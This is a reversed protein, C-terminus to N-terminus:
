PHVSVFEREPLLLATLYGNAHSGSGTDLAVVHGLDKPHPVRMHGMVVPRTTAPRYEVPAGGWLLWMGALQMWEEISEPPDAEVPPLGAHILWWKQGAVNIGMVHPLSEVLTRHREPVVHSQATIEDISGIEVGYSELTARGGVMPSLAFDDFGGGSVWQTFWEEHNGRVGYAQRALLLDLVEPTQPGRDCLDGVFFISRGRLRYLLRELLDARGHIDGIIAASELSDSVDVLRLQAMVRTHQGM